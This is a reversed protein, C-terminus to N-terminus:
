DLEEIQITSEITLKETIQKMNELENRKIEKEVNIEIQNKVEDSNLGKLMNNKDIGLGSMGGNQGMNGLNNFMGMLPGVMGMIGGMDMGGGSEGGTIGSLMNQVTGVLKGMDLDGSKVGSDINGILNQLMDGKLLSSATGMPDNKADEHNINKEIKEMFDSLFNGEKTPNNNKLNKLIERAKSSPDVISSIVLLHNWITDETEKDLSSPASNLLKYIDIYAKDSYIIKHYIIDKPNKSVIADQNRMCFDTFIEINKNMAQKQTIKIKNLLHNYLVLEHYKGDVCFRDKLQSIFDHIAKFAKFSNESVMNSTFSM